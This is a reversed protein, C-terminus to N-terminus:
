KILCRNQYGNRYINNTDNNYFQKIYKKMNSFTNTLGGSLYNNNVNKTLILSSSCHYSM